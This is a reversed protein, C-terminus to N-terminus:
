ESVRRNYGNPLGRVRLGGGRGIAAIDRHRGAPSDTIDFDINDSAVTGTIDLVGAASALVLTDAGSAVPDTGLPADITTFADGGAGGTDSDCAWDTTSSDWKLIENDSCGGLLGLGFNVFALGSTSTTATSTATALLVNYTYDVRDESPNDATTIALGQTSTANYGERQAEVIGNNFWDVLTASIQQQFVGIM